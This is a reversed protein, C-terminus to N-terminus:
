KFFNKLIKIDIKNYNKEREPHWMFAQIPLKKHKIGEIVKDNSLHTIRFDKPCNEIKWNHYSNVKRKISNKSNITTIFHRKAVHNEVRLLNINNIKAIMQLGRCIGFLPIKNKLCFYYICKEIKFREKNKKLDEGGSLIFGKVKSDKIYFKLLDYIQKFKLEINPIPIPIYGIISLFNLLEKDLADKFTQNKEDYILRQTVCIFKM